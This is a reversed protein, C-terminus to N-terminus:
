SAEGDELGVAVVKLSLETHSELYKHLLPLEHLCHSCTSSWFILLYNDAGELTSLKIPKGGEKWTIEPPISGIRVRSEQEIKTIIDQRKTETAIQKLYNEYLFDAMRNLGATSLQQWVNYYLYTKFAAD